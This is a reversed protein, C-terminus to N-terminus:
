NPSYDLGLYFAPTLIAREQWVRGLLFKLTQFHFTWINSFYNLKFLSCAKAQDETPYM